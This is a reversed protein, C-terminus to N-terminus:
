SIVVYTAGIIRAQGAEGIQVATVRVIGGQVLGYRYEDGPLRVTGSITLPGAHNKDADLERICGQAAHIFFIQSPRNGQTKVYTSIYFGLGFPTGHGDTIKGALLTVPGPPAGLLEFQLQYVGDHDLAANTLVLPFNGQATRITGDVGFEPPDTPLQYNHCSGSFESPWNREMIDNSRAAMTYLSVFAAQGIYQGVNVKTLPNFRMPDRAFDEWASKQEPTLTCWAQSADAFLARARIQATTQPNIPMVHQRAFMGYRGRAFVLGGLKGRLEGLPASIIRAM